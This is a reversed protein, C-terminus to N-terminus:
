PSLSTKILYRTGEQFVYAVGTVYTNYQEKPFIEKIKEQINHTSNALLDSNMNSLETTIRAKSGTSDVYSDLWQANAGKSNKVAGLIFSKEQKTPLTYYKPNNNYYAQKAMKVLSVVSTAKSSVNLSDIYNELQNMKKLTTLSTVGNPRQTDVMIELPLIGGFAKDFFSIEKYSTTKKSMDDLINGNSKILSVGILSIILLATVGIYVRIRKFLVIHEITAFVKNTWKFNLHKLDRKKPEPFFSLLSPVILFSFFFIGIINLSAVTGFEQLTSSDTFLFTFFGFATTLNTLIAANGVNVIMRHLAKMKNQHVVFEKQYKNILYICNPIGIVILLPPVLATLITIEYNFVALMSFCLVVAFTVVLFAILTNRLSRYFYLFLLCTVLLSALIFTFSESKVEKSNMTRIVPMGSLYLEIGTKEQFENVWQNIQTVEVVREKSNVINSNIFVIIQMANNDKNYLINEYFPFQMLAKREAEWARTTPIIKESKFGNTTSDKVLKVADEPSFIGTVGNLQQIKKQLSRFATFNNPEAMRSDEYGIVILNGEGGFTEKFHEFNVMTPDSSPLLQASTNTFKVGLQVITVVMAILLVALGGLIPLRNRLILSAIRNWM